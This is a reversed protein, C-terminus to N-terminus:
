SMMHFCSFKTHAWRTVRHHPLPPHCSLPRGPWQSLPLAVELKEKLPPSPSPSKGAFIFWHNTDLCFKLLVEGRCHPKWFRRCFGRCLPRVVCSNGELPEIASCIVQPAGLWSAWRPSRHPSRRRKKMLFQKRHHTRCILAGIGIFNVHMLLIVLLNFVLCTFSLKLDM